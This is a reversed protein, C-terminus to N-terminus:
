ILTIAFILNCKDCKKSFRHIYYCSISLSHISHNVHTFMTYM